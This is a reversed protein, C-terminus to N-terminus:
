LELTAALQGLTGEWGDSTIGAITQWADLNNGIRRALWGAVVGNNGIEEATHQALIHDWDGCSLLEQMWRRQLMLRAEEQRGLDETNPKADLIIELTEDMLSRLGAELRSRMQACACGPVCGAEPGVPPGYVYDGVADITEWGRREPGDAGPAEKPHQKDVKLVEDIVWDAHDTVFRHDSCLTFTLAPSKKADRRLAACAPGCEEIAQRVNATIWHIRWNQPGLLKEWEEETLKPAWPEDRPDKNEALAIAYAVTAVAARERGADDIVDALIEGCGEALVTIQEPTSYHRDELYGAEALIANIHQELRIGTNVHIIRRLAEAVAAPEVPVGCANRIHQLIAALSGDATRIWDAVARGRRRLETVVLGAWATRSVYPYSVPAAQGGETSDAPGGRLKEDARDLKKEARDLKKEIRDVYEAVVQEALEPHVDELKEIFYAAPNADIRVGALNARRRVLKGWSDRSTQAQLLPIYIDPHLHTNEALGELVGRRGDKLWHKQEALSRARRARARAQEVPLRSILHLDEEELWDGLDIGPIHPYLKRAVDGGVRSIGEAVIRSWTPSM